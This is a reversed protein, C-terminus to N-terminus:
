VEFVEFENRLSAVPTGVRFRGAERSLLRCIRQKRRSCLEPDIQALGNLWPFRGFSQRAKLIPQTSGGAAGNRWPPIHQGCKQSFLAIKIQLAETLHCGFELMSLITSIRSVKRLGINFTPRFISWIVWRGLQTMQDNSLEM